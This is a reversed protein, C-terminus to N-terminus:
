ISCGALVMKVEKLTTANLIALEIVDRSNAHGLHIGQVDIVLESLNKM